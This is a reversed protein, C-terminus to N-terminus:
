TVDFVHHLLEPRSLEGNVGDDTIKFPTGGEKSEGGGEVLLSAYVCELCKSSMKFANEYCVADCTCGKM